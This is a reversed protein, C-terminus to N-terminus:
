TVAVQYVLKEGAMFSLAFVAARELVPQAEAKLRAEIEEQTLDEAYKGTEQRLIDQQQMTHADAQISAFLNAAANKIETTTM